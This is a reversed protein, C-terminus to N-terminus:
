DLKWRQRCGEEMRRNFMPSELIHRQFLNSGTYQFILTTLNRVRQEKQLRKLKAESEQFQQQVQASRADM